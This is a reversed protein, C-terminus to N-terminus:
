VPPVSILPPVNVILPAPASPVPPILTVPSLVSAASVSRISSLFTASPALRVSPPLWAIVSDPVSLPMPESVLSVPLVRTNLPTFVCPPPTLRFDPSRTMVLGPAKPLPGSVTLALLPTVRDVVAGIAM